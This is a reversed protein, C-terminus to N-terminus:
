LVVSADVVVGRADRHPRVRVVPPELPLSGTRLKPGALDMAVLVHRGQAKAADRVRRAMAEWDVAADHACNIRAIDMGAGVLEAAVDPDDAAGSPMTVMIRTSRDSGLPGLLREANRVLSSSCNELAVDSGTNPAGDLDRLVDLVADLSDLVHAESRGLSSLGRRTLEEQVDRLDHRRLAVYHVLNRASAHHLPLVTSLAEAFEREALVCGRRLEELAVLLPRPQLGDPSERTKGASRTAMVASPVWGVGARVGVCASHTTFLVRQSRVRRAAGDFYRLSNRVLQVM